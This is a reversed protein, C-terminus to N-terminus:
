FVDEEQNIEIKNKNIVFTTVKDNARNYFGFQWGDINEQDLIKFAYSFFTNDNNQKWQKFENSRELRGLKAKFEM